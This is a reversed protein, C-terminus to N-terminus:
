SVITSTLFRRWDNEVSAITLNLFRDDFDPFTALRKRRQRDNFEPFSVLRVGEADKQRGFPLMLRHLIPHVMAWLGNADVLFQDDIQLSISSTM